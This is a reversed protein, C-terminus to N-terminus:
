RTSPRRGRVLHIFTMDDVRTDVFGAAEFEAAVDATSRAPVGWMDLNLAELARERADNDTGTAAAGDVWDLFSSTTWRKLGVAHQMSTAAAGVLLCAVSVRVVKRYNWM